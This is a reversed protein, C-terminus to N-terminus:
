GIGASREASPGRARTTELPMILGYVYRGRRVAEVRISLPPLAGGRSTEWWGQDEDAGVTLDGSSAHAQALVSDAPVRMSRRIALRSRAVFDNPAVTTLRLQEQIMAAAFGFAQQHSGSFRREEAKLAMDAAVFLAPSRLVQISGMATAFLSATPAAADRAAEIAEFSLGGHEVVAQDLAPAFFPPHFALRGAVHDVVSEIPDKARETAPPTRRFEPFPLQAPYILLHTLEHWATFYARPARDGRADVVALYKFFRPEWQERELTIGETSGRAFEVVLRQRLFPHFDLYQTAIREIDADENIFELRVRFKDAVMLRLADLDGVPIPSGCKIAEVQALAHARVAVLCDGHWDLGLDKALKVVKPDRALQAM